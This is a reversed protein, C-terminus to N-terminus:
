LPYDETEGFLDYEDADNIKVIYREGQVATRAHFYVKGDIDPANFYARGM